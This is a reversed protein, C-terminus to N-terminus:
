APGSSYGRSRMCESFEPIELSDIRAGAVLFSSAGCARADSEAVDMSAGPKSVTFMAPACGATSVLLGSALLVLSKKLVM